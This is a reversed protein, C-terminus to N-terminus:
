VMIPQRGLIRKVILIREFCGGKWLNLSDNAIIGDSQIDKREVLNLYLLIIWKVQNIRLLQIEIGECKWDSLLCIKWNSSIWRQTHHTIPFFSKFFIYHVPIFDDILFSSWSELELLKKQTRWPIEYESYSKQLKNGLYM